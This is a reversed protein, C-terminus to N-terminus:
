GGHPLLRLQSHVAAGGAQFTTLGHGARVVLLPIVPWDLRPVRMLKVQTIDAIAVKEHELLRM